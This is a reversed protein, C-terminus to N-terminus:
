NWKSLAATTDGKASAVTNRADMDKVDGTAADLVVFFPIGRVGFKEALLQKKGRESFPLAAWPMSSYYTAFSDEDRDSSVFVIELATDDEEFLQQHFEALVPTFGRCPPCWHASFYIGVKKKGSLVESTSKLGDKTQLEEGFVQEAWSTM